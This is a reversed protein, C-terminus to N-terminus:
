SSDPGTPDAVCCWGPACDGNKECKPLAKCTYDNVKPKYSCSGSPCDCVIKTHNVPDYRWNGSADKCDDDKTCEVCRGDACRIKGDTRQRCDYDQYVLLRLYNVYWERVVSSDQCSDTQTQCTYSGGELRTGTTTGKVLVNIGGDSDSGECCLCDYTCKGNTGCNWGADHEDCDPHAGCAQECKGDGASRSGCKDVVGDVTSEKRDSTCGGTPGGRAGGGDTIICYGDDPDWVGQRWETESIWVKCIDGEDGSPWGGGCKINRWMAETEPCWTHYGYIYGIYDYHQAQSVGVACKPFSSGVGGAFDYWSLDNCSSDKMKRWCTCFWDNCTPSGCANCGADVCNEVSASITYPEAGSVKKVLAYSSLVDNSSCSESSSGSNTSKCDYSSTSPCASSWKVYLDYDSSSSVSWTIKCKKGTPASVTYYQESGCMNSKSGSSSGFNYASGCSTYSSSDCAPLLHVNDTAGYHYSEYWVDFHYDGEEKATFTTRFTKTGSGVPDFATYIHTSSDCTGDLTCHLDSLDTRHKRIEFTIKGSYTIGRTDVSIYVDASSTKVNTWYFTVNPYPCDGCDMKGGSCPSECSCGLQTACDMCCWRYTPPLTTTTTTTQTIEYSQTSGVQSQYGSKSCSCYWNHTGVSLSSTSYKYSPLNNCLASTASYAIGNIYVNCNAGDIFNGSQDLYRCCFNVNTGYPQPSSPVAFQSLSTPNVAGCEGFVCSCTAGSCSSWVCDSTCTTTGTCYKTGGGPCDESSCYACPITSGPTCEAGCSGSICMCSTPSCTPTCGGCNGNISCSGTCSATSPYDCWKHGECQDVPCNITITCPNGYSSCISSCTCFDYGSEICIYYGLCSLSGCSGCDMNSVCESWQACYAKVLNFSITFILIFFILIYKKKM